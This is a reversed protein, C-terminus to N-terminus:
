ERGTAAPARDDIPIEAGFFVISAIEKDNIVKEFTKITLIRRSLLDGLHLGTFIGTKESTGDKFNITVPYEDEYENLGIERQKGSAEGIEKVFESDIKLAISIPSVSISKLVAEYGYLDIKRNPLYVTSYNKYDLKFAIEWTGAVVTEFVGPYPDAAQLNTFRFRATQGELSNETMLIMVLGIKNDNPDEDDLKRFGTSHFSEDTTTNPNEFRYRAANLATGEPAIFDMLIYTLNGDGIAQKLILTGQENAVRKDIAYAGDSLYEAQESNAPSLFKLFTEDLGRYAAAFATTTLLVTLAAALISFRVRKAPALARRKPPENRSPTLLNRYMREKQEDTPALREFLRKLKEDNM